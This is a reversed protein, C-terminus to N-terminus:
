LANEARDAINDVIGKDSLKIDALQKKGKNVLIHYGSVGDSLLYGVSYRYGGDTFTIMSIGNDAGHENEFEVNNMDEFIQKEVTGDAKFFTYSFGRNIDCVQVGKKGSTTMGSFVVNDGTCPVHTDAVVAGSLLSSIMAASVLIKKM